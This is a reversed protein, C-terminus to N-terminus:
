SNWIEWSREAQLILMRLGNLTQSGQASGRKLFETEAPNYVLDSLLQQPGLAQYPIAPAADTVPYMGLPTANVVLSHRALFAENVQHYSIEDRSPNRSVVTVMFGLSHLAAAAAKSGGGSGLLLAERNLFPYFPHEQLAHLFGYYDSNYGTLTGGTGLKIVNVAGVQQASHHLKHLYPIVAQKYPITVNLGHLFPHGALLAPLANIHELPFLRYEADTIGQQAFKDTFYAKSFSHGLPFGILGYLRIKDSDLM